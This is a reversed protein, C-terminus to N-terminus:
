FISVHSQRPMSPRMAPISASIAPPFNDASGNPQSSRWSPVSSQLTARLETVGGPKRGRGPYGRGCSGPWALFDPDTIEGAFEPLLRRRQQQHAHQFMMVAVPELDIRDVIAPIVLALRRRM